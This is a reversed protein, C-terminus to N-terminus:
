SEERDEAKSKTISADAISQLLHEVVRLEQFAASSTSPEGEALQSVLRSVQQLTHTWRRTTETKESPTKKQQM